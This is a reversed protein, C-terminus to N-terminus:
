QNVLCRISQSLYTQSTYRGRPYVNNHNVALRYAGSSNYNTSAWWRGGASEPNVIKSNEMYGASILSIPPEVLQLYDTNYWYPNDSAGDWTGVIYDKLFYYFENSGINAGASPLRWNKPCISYSADEGATSTGSGATAQPWNYYNGYKNENGKYISNNAYSFNLTYGDPGVDSLQNTLTMPTGYEGLELNQTMWCKGDALKAVTYKTNDRADILTYIKHSVSYLPTNNCIASDVQQMIMGDTLTTNPIYNAIATFTLSTSYTGATQVQDTKAAFTLTTTNAGPTNTEKIVHNPAYSNIDSSYALIPCYNGNNTCDYGGTVSSKDTGGTYGWHNAPFSSPSSVPYANDISSITPHPNFATNTLANSYGSTTNMQLTYGTRNNTSVNLDVNSTCLANTTDCTLTTTDPASLNLVTNVNLDVATDSSGTAFAPSSIGSIGSILCLSSIVFISFSIAFVTFPTTNAILSKVSKLM